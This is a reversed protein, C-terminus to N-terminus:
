KCNTFSLSLNGSISSPIIDLGGEENMKGETKVGDLLINVPMSCIGFRLVPNKGTVTFSIEAKGCEADYVAEHIILDQWHELWAPHEKMKEWALVQTELYNKPLRRSPIHIGRFEQMLQKEKKARELIKELQVRSRNNDLAMDMLLSATQQMAGWKYGMYRDADETFAMRNFVDEMDEPIHKRLGTFIEPYLGETTLNYIGDSRLRNPFLRGDRYDGKISDAAEAGRVVNQFQWSPYGEEHLAKLMYFPECNYYKHFYHHGGRLIACRLAFQRSALYIGEEFADKDGCVEAINIFSTFAGYNAGEVWTMANDSYGSGLCAFDNMNIFFRMARKLLPLAEELIEWRGSALACLYMYYFTLGVGWDNEIMPRDFAAVEDPDGKLQGSSFMGLNIYCIDFKAGTFPETRKYWNWLKLRALEPDSYIEVLKKDDPETQMMYAHSIAPYEFTRGSTCALKLREGALKRLRARDKGNMFNMLTTAFAYPEVLSGAYPYYITDPDLQEVYSLYEELGDKLLEPLTSEKERLPFKRRREMFPLTYSSINSLAGYLPGFKSPFQFDTRDKEEATMIGSLSAVPPLVATELPVTGWDDQIYRYSFRQKFHTKKAEHDNYYYEECRVPYAMFARSWFRCKEVILGIFASNSCSIPEFSEIGFPTATVILPCHDFTISELRDNVKSFHIQMNQPKKQFTIMFPLDPFETSGFLAIYNEALLHIYEPLLRVPIVKVKEGGVPLVAYQYNGAEELGSIRMKGSPRETIVGITGLSYTCSFEEDALVASWKVSLHNVEIKDNGIGVDAPPYSGHRLSNEPITAYSWRYPKKYRPHGCLYMKDMCGLNPMGFDLLGDGKSFGFRGPTVDKGVGARYNEVDWKGPTSFYEKRAFSLEMEFDPASFTKEQAPLLRFQLATKFTADDWSNKGEAKLFHEGEELYLKWANRAQGVRVFAATDEKGLKKGDIYIADLSFKTLFVPHLVASTFVYHGSKSCMFSNELTYKDGDFSIKADKDLYQESEFDYYYNWDCPM